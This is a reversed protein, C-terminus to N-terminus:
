FCAYEGYLEIAKNKYALSAQIPTNHCGLTIRKGNHCIEARYKNRRKDYSIGKYGTANDKHIESNAINQSQTAPRLNSWRNDYPIHNIHDINNEPFNGTMYLHALRHAKYLIKNVRIMISIYGDKSHKCGAISGIKIRNSNAKLWVFLGTDPNYELVEKLEDQTIM